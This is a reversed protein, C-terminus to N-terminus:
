DESIQQAKEISNYPLSGDQYMRAPVLSNDELKIVTYFLPNLNKSILFKIILESQEMELNKILLSTDADRKKLKETRQLTEEFKTSLLLIEDRKSQKYKNSAIRNRETSRITKCRKIDEESLIATTNEFVEHTSKVIKDYDMNLDALVKMKKELPSNYSIRRM